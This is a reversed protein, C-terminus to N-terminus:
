NRFNTCTIKWEKLAKRADEKYDRKTDYPLGGNMWAYADGVITYLYLPKNNLDEAPYTGWSSIMAM